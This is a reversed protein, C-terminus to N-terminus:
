RTLARVPAMIGATSLPRAKTTSAMGAGLLQSCNQDWCWLTGAGPSRAWPACSPKLRPLWACDGCGVMSTSRVPPLKAHPIPALDRVHPVCWFCLVGFAEIATDALAELRDTCRMSHEKIPALSAHEEAQCKSLHAPSVPEGQALQPFSSAARELNPQDSRQFLIADAIM